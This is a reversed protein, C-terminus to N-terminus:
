ERATRRMVLRVSGEHVAPDNAAGVGIRSPPAGTEEAMLLALKVAREVNAEGRVELLLQTDSKVLQKGIMRLRQKGQPSLNGDPLLLLSLPMQLAHSSQFTAVLPDELGLIGQGFQELQPDTYLPAQEVGNSTIRGARPRVRYLISDKEMGEPLDGAAGTGAASGFITVQMQEFSEPESTAFTLLLIFFTMLLTIVDSYTVFWVPIDDGPEEFKKKRM